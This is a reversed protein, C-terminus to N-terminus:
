LLTKFVQDDSLESLRLNTHSDKNSKSYSDQM